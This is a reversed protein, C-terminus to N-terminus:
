FFFFALFITIPQITDGGGHRGSGFTVCQIRLAGPGWFTFMDPFLIM